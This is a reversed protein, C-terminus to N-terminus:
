VQVAGGQGHAADHGICGGQFILTPCIPYNPM